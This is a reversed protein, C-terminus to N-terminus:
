LNRCSVVNPSMKFRLGLVKLGSIVLVSHSKDNKDDYIQCESHSNIQILRDISAKCLRVLQQECLVCPGM